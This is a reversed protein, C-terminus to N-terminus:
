VEGLDYVVGGCQCVIIICTKCVPCATEAVPIEVVALAVGSLQEVKVSLRNVMMLLVFLVM